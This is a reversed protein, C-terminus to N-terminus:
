CVAELQARSLAGERLLEIKDDSVKVVRSPVGGPVRGGDLILTVMDGVGVQAEQATQAPAQGSRNASTVLLCGGAARLPWPM